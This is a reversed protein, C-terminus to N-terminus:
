ESSHVSSPALASGTHHRLADCRADTRTTTLRTRSNLFGAIQQSIDYLVIPALSRELGTGGVMLEYNLGRRGSPRRPKNTGSTTRAVRPTATAATTAHRTVAKIVHPSLLIAYAEYANAAYNLATALNARTRDIDGDLAELRQRM